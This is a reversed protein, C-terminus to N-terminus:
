PWPSYTYQHTSKVLGGVTYIAVSGATLTPNSGLSIVKADSVLPTSPGLSVSVVLWGLWRDRTCSGISCTVYDHGNICHWVLLHVCTYVSYMSRCMIIIYYIYLCVICVSTHPVRALLGELLCTSWYCSVARPAQGSARAVLQWRHSRWVQLWLCLCLTPHHVPPTFLSTTMFATCFLTRHLWLTCASTTSYM